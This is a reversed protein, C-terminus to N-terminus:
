FFELIILSSWKCHLSLEKAGHGIDSCKIIIQLILHRFVENDLTLNESDDIYKNFENM